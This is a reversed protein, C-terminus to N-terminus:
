LKNYLKLYYDERSRIEKIEAKSKDRYGCLHLAGHFIVRHLETGITQGLTKANDKVRDISIYIEAEVPENRGSLPFTIVDTLFDHNLYQRNIILLEEDSCFIYNLQKFPVKEKRFISIIFKRLRIRDKLRYPKEFFFQIPNDIM